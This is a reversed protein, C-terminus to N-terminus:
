KKKAKGRAAKLAEAYWELQELFGDSRKQWAAADNPKGTEDFAEHVAPCPLTKQISGCGLEGLMARLTMAARVGGFPGYSYTAIASPKQAYEAYFHDLLNTLAPPATHNYEASVLLYADSSALIDHLKALNAPIKEGPKYDSYRKRLLPLDYELPDILVPKHGRAKLAQELYKAFRIGLRGDRVSGYLISISLAM